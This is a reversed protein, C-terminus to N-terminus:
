QYKKELEDVEDSGSRLKQMAAVTGKLSDLGNPGSGDNEGFKSVEVLLHDFELLINENQKLISRIYFLHEQYIQGSSSSLANTGGTKLLREYEVVDFISMRSLIKKMNEYLLKSSDDVVRRLGAITDVNEQYNQFLVVDLSQQKRILRQIQDVATVVFQRFVPKSQFRGFAEKFEDPEDLEEFAILSGTSGGTLISYNGYLFVLISIVILTISLASIFTSRGSVSLNLLVDSFAFINVLVIGANLLVLKLGKKSDM